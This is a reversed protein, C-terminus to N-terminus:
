EPNGNFALEQSPADCGFRLAVNKFAVHVWLGEDACHLPRWGHQLQRPAPITSV